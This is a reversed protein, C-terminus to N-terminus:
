RGYDSSWLWELSMGNGCGDCPNDENLSSGNGGTVDYQGKVGILSVSEAEWELIHPTTYQM